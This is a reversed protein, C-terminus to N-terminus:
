APTSRSADRMPRAPAAVATAALRHRAKWCSPSPPSGDCTCCRSWPSARPCACPLPLWSSRAACALHACQISPRRRDCATPHGRMSYYGGRLGRAPQQLRRPPSGARHHARTSPSHTHTSSLVMLFPPHRTNHSTETQARMTAARMDSTMHTSTHADTRAHTRTQHTHTHTRAHGRLTASRLICAHHMRIPTETVTTPQQVKRSEPHPRRRPTRRRPKSRIHKM